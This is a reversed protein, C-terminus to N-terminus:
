SGPALDRRYPNPLKAMSPAKTRTRGLIAECEDVLLLVDNVLGTLQAESMAQVRDGVDRGGLARRLKLTTDKLTEHARDSLTFWQM